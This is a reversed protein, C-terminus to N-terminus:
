GAIELEFGLRAAFLRSLALSADAVSLDCGLARLQTMEIDEIGCPVIAAFPDLDMDVNLAVGHYTRAKRVRLGLSALKRGDVYVGPQGDRRAAVFGQAEGLDIVAQELANVLRKIGIGHRKLDLMVYLVAQGPGHYTILGGRDIDVVPIRTDEPASDRDRQGRTYVPPHQVSWIEDPTDDDRELTFTRMSQWVPEYECLGLEKYLVTM